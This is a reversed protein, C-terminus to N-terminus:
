KLWKNGKMSKRLVKYTIANFYGADFEITFVSHERSKKNRRESSYEWTLCLSIKIKRIVDPVNIIVQLCFHHSIHKLLNFKYVKPSCVTFLEYM